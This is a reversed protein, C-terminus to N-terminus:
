SAGEVRGAGAGMLILVLYQIEADWFNYEFAGAVTIGAVAVLTSAVAARDEPVLRPLGRWTTVAFAGILWLYTALGPLGREAAIQMPNNHLHPVRWRPADDRRYLPYLQPVMDPGIGTWPYDRVMQIGSVLMCLRDYNAHQRLDFTSWVRDIVTRPAALWVAVALLPYVILLRRHWTLGLLLLGAALGVWSNRTLSLLMAVTGLAAPPVLWLRRRGHGLAAEAILVLVAVLLWGSYTMYHSLPGRIRQELNDAGHLYQVLGWVALVATAVALGAVVRAWWTRDLLLAALPVLLLVLLRPAQSFSVLPDQSALTALLSVVVFAVLAPVLVRAHPRGKFLGRRWAIWSAVFAVGILLNAAFLRSSLVAAGALAAAAVTRAGTGAAAPPATM